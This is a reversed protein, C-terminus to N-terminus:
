EGLISELEQASLDEIQDLELDLAAFAAQESDYYEPGVVEELSPKYDETVIPCDFFECNNTPDRAVYTGDPCEIVDATCALPEEEVCGLLILMLFSALLLVLINKTEM